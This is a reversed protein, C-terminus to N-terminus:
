SGSGGERAIESLDVRGVCVTQIRMNGHNLGTLTCPQVLPKLRARLAPDIRELYHQRIALVVPKSSSVEGLESHHVRRATGALYYHVTPEDYGCLYVHDGPQVLQNITDALRRSLRTPEMSPLLWLGVVGHFLVTAFVAAKWAAFLSRRRQLWGVWLFGAALICGTGVAALSWPQQRNMVGVAVMAIGIVMMISPWLILVTRESKNLAQWPRSGVFMTQFERALLIALPVYCPLVHHPLKARVSEILAWPVLLAILLVRSTADCHRRKFAALLAGPAFVTWPLWGALSAFLCTGPPSSHPHHSGLFRAFTEYWLFQGVLTQGAKVSVYAYWPLGTLLAVPLWAWWRGQGAWARRQPTFLLALTFAGAFVLTAPGKAMVGFGIALWYLASRWHTVGQTAAQWHTVVAVLTCVLMVSDTLLMKGVIASMSFTIFVTGAIMGVQRGFMRSALMGTLLVSLSMSVVSVLRAQWEGTGFLKYSSLVLWYTLPPKAIWVEGLYTPVLWDNHAQMERCVQAYWGEDRDFFSVGATGPLLVALALGLLVLGRTWGLSSTAAKEPTSTLPGVQRTNDNVDRLV